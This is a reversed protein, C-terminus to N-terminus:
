SLVSAADVLIVFNIFRQRLGRGENRNGKTGSLMEGGSIGERKYSLLNKLLNGMGNFRNSM